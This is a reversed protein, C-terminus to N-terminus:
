SNLVEIEERPSVEGSPQDDEPPCPSPTEKAAAKSLALLFLSVVFFYAFAIVVCLMTSTKVLGNYHPSGPNNQGPAPHGRPSRTNM